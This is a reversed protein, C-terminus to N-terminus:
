SSSCYYLRIYFILWLKLLHILFGSNFHLYSLLVRFQGGFYTQSWPLFKKLSYSCLAEQVALLWLSFWKWDGVSSQDQRSKLDITFYGWSGSQGLTNCSSLFYLSWVQNGCIKNISCVGVLGLQELMWENQKEALVKWIKLSQKPLGYDM